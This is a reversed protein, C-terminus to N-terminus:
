PCHVFGVITAVDRQLHYQIRYRGVVIERVDDRGLEKVQTGAHAYRHLTEDIARAVDEVFHPAAAPTRAAIAEVAEDFMSAAHAAWRVTRPHERTAM